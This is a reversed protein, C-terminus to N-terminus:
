TKWRTCENERSYYKLVCVEGVLHRYFFGDNLGSQCILAFFM